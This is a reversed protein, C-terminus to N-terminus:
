SMKVTNQCEFLNWLDLHAEAHVAGRFSGTLAPVALMRTFSYQLSVRLVDGSERGRPFFSWWFVLNNM